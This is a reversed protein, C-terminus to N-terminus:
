KSGEALRECTLVANDTPIRRPTIEACFCGRACQNNSVYTSTHRLQEASRSAGNVTAAHQKRPVGLDSVYRSPPLVTGVGAHNNKLVISTASTGVRIAVTHKTLIAIPVTTAIWLMGTTM